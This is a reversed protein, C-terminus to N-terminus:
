VVAGWLLNAAKKAALPAAQPICLFSGRRKKKEKIEKKKKGKRYENYCKVTSGVLFLSESTLLGFLKWLRAAGHKLPLKLDLRVSSGGIDKQGNEARGALRKLWRRDWCSKRWLLRATTCLFGWIWTVPLGWVMTWLLGWGRKECGLM